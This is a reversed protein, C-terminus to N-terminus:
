DHVSFLIDVYKNM